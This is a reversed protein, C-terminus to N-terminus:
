QLCSVSLIYIGKFNDNIRSEKKHVKKAVLLGNSHNNTKM